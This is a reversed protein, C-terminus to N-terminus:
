LFCFLFCFSVGRAGPVTHAMGPRGHFLIWVSKYFYPWDTSSQANCITESRLDVPSNQIKRVVLKYRIQNNRRKPILRVTRLYQSFPSVFFLLPSCFLLVALFLAIKRHFLYLVPFLSIPQQVLTWSNTLHLTLSTQGQDTLSAGM